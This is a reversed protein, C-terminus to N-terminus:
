ATTRLNHLVQKATATQEQTVQGMQRVLDLATRDLASVADGIKELMDRIIDSAFLHSEIAAMLEAVNIMINAVVIQGAGRTIDGALGVTQGIVQIVQAAQQALSALRTMSQVAGAGNGVAISALIIAVTVVITAAINGITDALAEDVGFTKLVSSIGQGIVETLKGVVSFGTALQVAYDISLALGMVGGAVIMPNATLAGVAIVVVSAVTALAAKIWNLIKGACGTKQEADAAREQEEAHKRAREINEADRAELQKMLVQSDNKLKELSHDSMVVSLRALLEQLKASATLREAPPELRLVGGANFRDVTGQTTNFRASARDVTRGADLAKNTAREFRAEDRGLQQRASALRSELAPRNPDDAAMAQLEREYGAVKERQKQVKDRAQEAEGLASELAAEANQLEGLAAKQESSLREAHNQRVALAARHTALRQRLRDLGSDDITQLLQGLQANLAAEPTLPRGVELPGQQLSATDPRRLNVAMPVSPHTGAPADQQLRQLLAVVDETIDEIVRTGAAADFGAAKAITSTAARTQLFLPTPRSDLTLISM